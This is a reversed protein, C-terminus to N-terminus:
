KAMSGRKLLAATFCQLSTGHGSGLRGLPKAELRTKSGVLSHDKAVGAGREPGRIEWTYFTSNPSPPRQSENSSEHGSSKMNTQNSPVAGHVCSNLKKGALLQRERNGMYLSRNRFVCICWYGYGYLSLPAWTEPVLFALWM